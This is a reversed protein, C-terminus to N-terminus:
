RAGPRFMTSAEAAESPCLACTVVCPLVESIAQDMKELRGKVQSGATQLPTAMERCGEQFEERGATGDCRAAAMAPNVSSYAPLRPARPRAEAGAGVSVRGAAEVRELGQDWFSRTGPIISGLLFM